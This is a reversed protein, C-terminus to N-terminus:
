IKIKKLLHLLIYLMVVHHIYIWQLVELIEIKNPNNLLISLNNFVQLKKNMYIKLMFIM